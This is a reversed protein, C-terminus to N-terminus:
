TELLRSILGSNTVRPCVLDCVPVKKGFHAYQKLFSKYHSSLEPLKRNLLSKHAANLISGNHHFTVFTDVYKTPIINLATFPIINDCPIKPIM